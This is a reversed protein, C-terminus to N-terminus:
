EMPLLDTARGEETGRPKVRYYASQYIEGLAYFAGKRVDVTYILGYEESDSPEITIQNRNAFIVAEDVVRYKGKTYSDTDPIHFGAVIEGNDKEIIDAPVIIRVLAPKNEMRSMRIYYLAKIIIQAEPTGEKNLDPHMIEFDIVRVRTGYQYEKSKDFMLQYRAAALPDGQEVISRYPQDDSPKEAEPKPTTKVESAVHVDSQMDADATAPKMEPFLEYFDPLVSEVLERQYGYAGFFVWWDRGYDLTNDSIKNGINLVYEKGVHYCPYYYMNRRGTLVFGEGPMYGLNMMVTFRHGKEYDGKYNRVVEVELKVQVPSDGLRGDNLVVAEETNLLERKVVRVRVMNDSKALGEFHRCKATDRMGNENLYEPGEYDSKSKETPAQNQTVDAVPEADAFSLPTFLCTALLSLQAARRLRIYNDNM